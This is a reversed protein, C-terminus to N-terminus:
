GPPELRTLRVANIWPLGDDHNYFALRNYGARLELTGEDFWRPELRSATTGALGRRLTVDDLRVEAPRSEDAPSTVVPKRERRVTDVQWIDFSTM